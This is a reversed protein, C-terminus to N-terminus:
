KKWVEHEGLIIKDFRENLEDVQRGDLTGGAKAKAYKINADLNQLAMWTDTKQIWLERSRLFGEWAAVVTLGSSTILSLISLWKSGLIQGVGILITTLASLCATALTYYYFRVRYFKRSDDFSTIQKELEGELYELAESESM